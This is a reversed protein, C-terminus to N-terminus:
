SRKTVGIRLNDICLFALGNPDGVDSVSFQVQVPARGVASALNLPIAKRFVVSIRGSQHDVSCGLNPGLLDASGTRTLAGGSPTTGSMDSVLVPFPGAGTLLTVSVRAASPVSPVISGSFGFEYDFRVTITAPQFGINVPPSVLDSRVGGIAADNTGDLDLDVPFLDQSEPQPPGWTSLCAAFFGDSPLQPLLCPNGDHADLVAVNGLPTWCSCTGDINADGCFPGQGPCSGTGDQEFSPDDVKLQVAPAIRVSLIVALLLITQRLRPPM